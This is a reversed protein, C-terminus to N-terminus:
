MINTGRKITGKCQNKVHNM